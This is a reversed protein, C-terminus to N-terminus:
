APGTRWQDVAGPWQVALVPVDITELFPVCEAWDDVHLLVKKGTRREVEQVGSRKYEGHWNPGSFDHPGALVIGVPFLDHRDLWDRTEQMAAGDRASCVWIDHSEALMQFLRVAGAVPIDDVCAKSYAVWTAQDGDFGALGARHRTDCLTSDLDFTM